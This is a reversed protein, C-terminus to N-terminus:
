PPPLPILAQDILQGQADIARLRIEEPGIDLSVYHSIREGHQLGAPSSQVSYLVGSGGGSVVYSTGAVLFRQYNHDHGALVLPVRESAFLEGWHSRVLVSDELHRGANYPPVHSVVISYRISEDEIRDELWAQQEDLGPYGFISQSNLMIFQIDGVRFAYWMGESAEPMSLDPHEFPAFAEQYYPRDHWYTPSDFEHNGPVPYFPVRQLLPALPLYLKRLFASPPDPDEQVRYVVDGTHLVFDVEEAAMLEALDSTVEEGFGSDGFAAVRLTEAQEPRTEFNVFGWPVRVLRPPEGLMVVAEYLTGPELEDILIPGGTAPQSLRRLDSRDEAQWLVLETPIEEELAYQLVASHRDVHRITLPLRYETEASEAELIWSLDATPEPTITPTATATPTLTPTSSPATTATPEPRATPAEPVMLSCGAVVFSLVFLGLHSRRCSM